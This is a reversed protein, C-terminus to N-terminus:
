QLQIPVGRCHCPVRRQVTWFWSQRHGGRGCIMSFFNELCDQNLRNKMLSQMSFDNHLHNWLSILSNISLKWGELCPLKSSKGAHVMQGLWKLCDMLCETVLLKLFHENISTLHMHAQAISHTSCIILNRLSTLLISLMQHCVTELWVCHQSELLWHSLVQAALNVHMATFAPPDIHKQTLKPTMRIPLQSDIEYFREVHEWSIENGEGM